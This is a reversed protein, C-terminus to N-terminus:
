AGAALRRALADRDVARREIKGSPGHPLEDVLEVLRPYAYAAVRERVFAKLEDADCGADAVVLAAVEEGLTAHPVGLVVAERVGPHAALAEEVQGPYITYGGRLIVDKKRGLLVLESGAELRGLDGTALWGEHGRPLTPGSVLVEGDNAIRLDGALPTGVSGPVRPRGAREVTVAGGAETMGYGELVAAGFRAAFARRTEDPLPAGGVHALRVAPARGSEESTALLSVCMAPVGMFVTVREREIAALGAAPDFRPLLALAAGAAIAANMCATMGFVHALPAAGLLVDDERLGLAAATAEAALRLGGQTLEVRKPAGTTGSTHLIVAPDDAAPSVAGALAPGDLEEVAVLRAGAEAVREEVQGASLLPSLPVAVAGLRLAGHFAAVAAPVNPLVFAVADGAAVGRGRLAGAARAARADLEAYTTAAGEFRLAPREPVRGAADALLRALTV